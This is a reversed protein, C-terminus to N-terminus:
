LSDVLEGELITLTEKNLAIGKVRITNNEQETVTVECVAKKVSSGGSGTEATITATGAKVGTVM